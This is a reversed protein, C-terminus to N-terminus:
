SALEKAAKRAAKRRLDYARYCTRCARGGTNPNTYTNEPTFEHNRICHTVGSYRGRLRGKLSADRMNDSHTGDFLHRPNVCPPNDCRHCMCQEPWSGRTLFWAARTATITISRAGPTPTYSTLGYGVNNVRGTWPWCEDVGGKDVHSWFRDALPVIRDPM